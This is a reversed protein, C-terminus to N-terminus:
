LPRRTPPETHLYLADVAAHKANLAHSLEDLQRLAIDRTGRFVQELPADHRDLTRKHDAVTNPYKSLSTQLILHSSGCTHQTAASPQSPSGLSAGNWKIWTPAAATSGGCASM